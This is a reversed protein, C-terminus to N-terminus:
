LPFTPLGAIRRRIEEQWVQARLRCHWCDQLKEHNREFVQSIQMLVEIDRGIDNIVSLAFPDWLECEQIGGKHLIGSPPPRHADLSAQVWHDRYLTWSVFYTPGLGILAHEASIGLTKPAVEMCLDKYGHRVAYGLINIPWSSASDRMFMKCIEMAPSVRYKEAAEALNALQKFDVSHLDPQPQGYMYQFLLELTSSDETLHVIDDSSTIGEGPFVESHMHLILKHVKLHVGDCSRMVVDGDNM